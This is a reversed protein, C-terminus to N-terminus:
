PVILPLRFRRLRRICLLFHHGLYFDWNRNIIKTGDEKIQGKLDEAVLNDVFINEHYLKEEIFEYVFASYAALLTIVTINNAGDPARIAM